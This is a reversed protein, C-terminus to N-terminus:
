SEINVHHDQEEVRVLRAGVPLKNVVEMARWLPVGRRWKGSYFLPRTDVWEEVYPDAPMPHSREYEMIKRMANVPDVYEVCMMEIYGGRVM